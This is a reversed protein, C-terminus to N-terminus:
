APSDTPLGAETAADLLRRDYTVFSTIAHRAHLATGLHIADLSRVTAPRATQALIRIPPDLNILDILDLVEPLRSVAHPAYRALARFSEIETLVSSIWGTEAREDLWNRLAASEAEAHTLKVVAASGLSIM